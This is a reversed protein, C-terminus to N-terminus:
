HTHAMYIRANDLTVLHGSWINGGFLATANNDSNVIMTIDYTGEKAACVFHLNFSLNKTDQFLNYSVIKGESTFGGVGNGGIGSNNGTQIIGRDGDVGIFNIAPNIHKNKYVSMDTIFDVDLVFRKAKLVSDMVFFNHNSQMRRLEKKSQSNSNESIGFFGLTMFLCVVYFRIIKM